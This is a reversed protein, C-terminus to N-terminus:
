NSGGQSGENFIQYRGSYGGKLLPEQWTAAMVKSLYKGSFYTWVSGSFTWNTESILKYCGAVSGILLVVKLVVSFM